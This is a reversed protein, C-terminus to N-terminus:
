GHSHGTPKVGYHGNWSEGSEAMERVMLSYEALAKRLLDKSGAYEEVLRREHADLDPALM